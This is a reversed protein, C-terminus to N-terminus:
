RGEIQLYLNMQGLHYATHRVMQQAFWLADLPGTVEQEECNPCWEDARSDHQNEETVGALTRRAAVLSEDIRALLWEKTPSPDLQWTRKVDAPGIMTAYTLNGSAIHEAIEAFTRAHPAPRWGLGSEGASEISIRAADYTEELQRLIPRLAPIMDEGPGLDPRETADPVLAHQSGVVAVSRAIWNTDIGRAMLLESLQGVHGHIDRLNMIEHSLKTMSPYWSFGTERSDLDLRDVTSDILGRVYAIYDRVEQRTLPTAGEPLEYPEVDIAKQTESVGLATRVAQPWDAVSGNFAEEHQVVYGHTFYAAHWAIRWFTRPHRGDLWLGVPCKEVCEDLMALAAHAQEKLAQRLEM